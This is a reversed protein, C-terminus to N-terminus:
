IERELLHQVAAHIDKIRSELHCMHHRGSRLLHIIETIELDAENLALNALGDCFEERSILGSEDTDLLEFLNVMKEPVLLNVLSEPLGDLSLTTIGQYIESVEISGDGSKDLHEFIKYIWPLTEKLKKRIAQTEQERDRHSRQLADDIVTAAVLNMLLVSVVFFCVLFFLSQGPSAVVIPYYFASISDETAFQMLTLIIAPISSFRDEIISVVEPHRNLTPSQSIVEAAVCALIYITLLLLVLAAWLTNASSLMGRVLKGMTEFCSVLRLARALRLLRVLRFLMFQQGIKGVSSEDEHDWFISLNPVIWITTIGILALM